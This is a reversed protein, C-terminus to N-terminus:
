AAACAARSVQPAARGMEEATFLMNRGPPLPFLSLFPVLLRFLLSRTRPGRRRPNGGQRRAALRRRDPVQLVPQQADRAVDQGPRCLGAVTRNEGEELANLVARLLVNEQMRAMATTPAVQGPALEGEINCVPLSWARAGAEGNKMREMHVEALLADESRSIEIAADTNARLAGAGRMGRSKDKGEHHVFLVTVGLERRLRIMAASGVETSNEDHGAICQSYTDLVLLGFKTGHQQELRWIYSIFLSVHAPELLRLPETINLLDARAPTM